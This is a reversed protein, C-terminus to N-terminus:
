SLIAIVAKIKRAKSLRGCVRVCHSATPTSILPAASALADRPLCPALPARCANIRIDAAEKRTAHRCLLMPESALTYVALGAHHQQRRYTKERYPRQLRQVGLLPSETVRTKTVRESVKKDVYVTQSMSNLMQRIHGDAHQVAAIKADEIAKAKLVEMERKM